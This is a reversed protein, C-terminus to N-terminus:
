IKYTDSETVQRPDCIKIFDKLRNLNIDSHAETEDAAWRVDRPHSFINM